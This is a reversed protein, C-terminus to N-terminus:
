DGKLNHVVDLITTSETRVMWDPHVDVFRVVGDTGIVVTSPYPLTWSGTGLTAGLDNGDAISRARSDEEPAFGIGFTSSRRM